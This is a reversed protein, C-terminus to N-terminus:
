SRAQFREDSCRPPVMSGACLTRPSVDLVAEALLGEGCCLEVTTCPCDLRLLLDVIIQLQREREPVVYRRYAIFTRSVPENWGNQHIPYPLHM